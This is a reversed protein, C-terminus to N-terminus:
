ETFVSMLENSSYQRLIPVGIKANDLFDMNPEQKVTNGNKELNVKGQNMNSPSSEFEDVAFRSPICTGKGVFGLNKLPGQDLVEGPKADYSGQINSTNSVLGPFRRADGFTVTSSQHTASTTANLSCSSLSSCSAPTSYGSLIGTAKIDGNSIQGVNVASDSSQSSLISYDIVTNRNFSCNQNVSAPSNGLQFGPSTQPVVLCSPQVNISRSSESLVSLQQTQLQKQQQQQLIDMLTNSNQTSLGGLNISSGVTGLSNSPWAGFGSSVDEVPLISPPFHKSINTQCKVLPQGFPVSHEVPGRKPGQLTAHLLTPQDLAPVLNGTPRGLLEAHLAALTQPPIQGSAALAQIDFRGLSGLKVNPEVSGCFASSIGTQQQAVGSIRKLYLRFKQLHSAVNERTLGPVNMLELIRKPVAKDLGLQNVASVFQQHLEVSWVVRPKKSSSPDDNELEGDDEEKSNSRKKQCKLSGETGENVSSTYEADDNVQKHRDNDELSGSNELEKNENWKKRVVHQWINKLEEERIPKILYDCAGHRIGRMVASTSGDASMMIVPLDMELGVHELLKYGDMDPMYVDSLVVDFCGKRERLLKLAATAQFCTTVHYLCRRLMKELITLCTTDDDVVLVRLGVPFKDSVVMESAVAASSSTATKTSTNTTTTTVGAGKCSGYSSATTSISSQAVRQLAAM